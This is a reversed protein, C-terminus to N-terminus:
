SFEATTKMAQILRPTYTEMKRLRDAIQDYPTVGTGKEDIVAHIAPSKMKELEEKLDPWRWACEYGHRAQWTEAAEVFERFPRNIDLGSQSAALFDCYAAKLRLEMALDVIFRQSDGFLLGKLRGPTLKEAPLAELQAAVARMAGADAGVLAKWGQVILHGQGPILNDGFEVYDEEAPMPKGIAGRAFAFTNPLQVCHTQGNAITGGPAGSQGARFAVDGGFNTMPFSPEYEIAGYNFSVATAALGFKEALKLTTGNPAEGATHTTISWPKPNLKKV